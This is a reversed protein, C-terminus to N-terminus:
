LSDKRSLRRLIGLPTAHTFFVVGFLITSVIVALVDSLGLWAVALSRFAAPATMNLVQFVVAGVFDKGRKASISVTM